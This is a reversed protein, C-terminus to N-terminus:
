PYAANVSRETKLYMEARCLGISFRRPGEILTLIIRVVVASMTM